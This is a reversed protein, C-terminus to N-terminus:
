QKAFEAYEYEGGRGGLRGEYVGTNKIGRIGAETLRGRVQSLKRSASRVVMAGSEISEGRETISAPESFDRELKGVLHGGSRGAPM